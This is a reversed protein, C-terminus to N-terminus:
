VRCSGTFVLEGPGSKIVRGTTNDWYVGLNGGPVTITATRALKGALVGAVLVACAGTGCALTVGSGREYTWIVARLRSTFAAVHVNVSRPFLPSRQLVPGIVEVLERTPKNRGQCWLVAHPNGMSVCTMSDIVNAASGLSKRLSAPLAAGIVAPSGDHSANALSTACPILQPSLHPTGMDVQAATFRPGNRVIHMAREGVGYVAVQLTSRKFGHQDCMHRAICRIGNGCMGGDTGDANFVRMTVHATKSRTLLLLEDAGIGFRRDCLKRSLDHWDRRALAPTTIADILVFDNGLGHYKFFPLTRPQKAHM